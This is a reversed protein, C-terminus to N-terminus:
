RRKAKTGGCFPCKAQNQDIPMGCGSCTVTKIGKISEAYEKFIEGRMADKAKAKDAIAKQKKYEEYDADPQNSTTSSSSGASQSSSQAQNGELAKLRAELAQIAETLVQSTTKGSM